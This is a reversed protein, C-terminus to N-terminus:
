FLERARESFFGDPWPKDFEGDENVPIHIVESGDKVPQVYLVSVDDPTIAPMGEPLEGAATERIRRLIRLILHESHTEIIFTNKQKGMAARIFFDGLETQLAPHLHLEPQEILLTKNHSVANKLIVPLVQSVGVGVDKMRVHIKNEVDFLRFQYEDPVDGTACTFCLHSLCYRMGLSELQLNIDKLEDDSYDMDPDRERLPGVSVLNELFHRFAFATSLTYLSPSGADETKFGDHIIYQVECDNLLSPLLGDFVLFDNFFNVNFNYFRSILSYADQQEKVQLHSLKEIINSFDNHESSELKEDNRFYKQLVHSNVEKLSFVSNPKQQYLQQARSQLDTTPPFRDYAMFPESDNGLFLEIRSVNASFRDDYSFRFALGITKFNSISNLEIFHPDLERVNLFYDEIPFFESLDDPRDMTIKVTFDRKVNHGHVLEAYKGLDVDPGTTLLKPERLRADLTQKLMMLSQFISSKGSSNPGFILTIPKIPITAPNSFSKFNTIQYETLM